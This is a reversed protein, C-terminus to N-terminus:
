KITTPKIADSGGSRQRSVMNQLVREARAAAGTEGSKALASIVANYTYTNPKLDSDGALYKAEMKDLLQEARVAAGRYGSKSWADICATYQWFFLISKTLVIDFRVYLV